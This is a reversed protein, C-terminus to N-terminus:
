SRIINGVKLFEDENYKIDLVKMALIDNLPLSGWKSQYCIKYVKKDDVYKEIMGHMKKQVIYYVQSNSPSQVKLHGHEDYFALESPSLCEKLFVTSREEIQTLLEPTIPPIEEIGWREKLQKKRTEQDIIDLQALREQWRGRMEEIEAIKRPDWPPLQGTDKMMKKQMKYNQRLFGEDHGIQELWKLFSEPAVEKEEDIPGFNVTLYDIHEYNPYGTPYNGNWTYRFCYARTGQSPTVRIWNQHENGWQIRNPWNATEVGFEQVEEPQNFDREYGDFTSQALGVWGVYYSDNAATTTQDWYNTSDTTSSSGYVVFQQLFSM